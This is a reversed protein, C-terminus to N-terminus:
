AAEAANAIRQADLWRGFEALHDAILEAPDYPILEELAARNRCARAAARLRTASEGLAAPTAAGGYDTRRPAAAELADARQRWHAATAETLADQLVRGRHHEVHETLNAKM